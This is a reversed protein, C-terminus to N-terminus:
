LIQSPLHVKVNNTIAMSKHYLSVAMMQGDEVFLNRLCAQHNKYRMSLMEPGRGSLGCTFLIAISCVHLWEAIDREYSLVKSERYQLNAEVVWEELENRGQMRRLMRTRAAKEGDKGLYYGSMPHNSPDHISYFDVDPLDDVMLILKTLRELEEIIKHVCYKWKDVELPKGELLVRKKDHSMTVQFKGPTFKSAAMGYNRLTHVYHFPTHQGTVLWRAHKLKFLQLPSDGCGRFTRRDSTPLTDELIILRMCWILASLKNTYDNPSRWTGTGVNYGTIGCFYQIASSGGKWRDHRILEASLDLIADEWEENTPISLAMSRSRSCERPESDSQSDSDDDSDVDDSDDDDSNSESSSESESERRWLEHLKEASLRQKDLLPVRYLESERVSRACLVILGAWRKAYKTPTGKAYDRSFPASAEASANTSELWQLIVAWDRSYCDKVGDLCRKTLLSVVLNWVRTVFPDTTGRQTGEVLVKMDQGAFYKPWGTHRLWPTLDVKNENEGIVDRQEELEKDRLSARELLREIIDDGPLTAPLSVNQDVPFYKRFRTTSFFSQCFNSKM